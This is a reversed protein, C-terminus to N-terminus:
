TTAGPRRPHPPQINTHGDGGCRDCVRGAAAGRPDDDPRAFRVGTGSCRPCKTLSRLFARAQDSLSSSAPPRYVHDNVQLIGRSPDPLPLQDFRDAM